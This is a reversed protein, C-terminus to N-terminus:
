DRIGGLIKKLKERGRNVTVRVTSSAGDIDLEEAIEDYSKGEIFKLRLIERTQENEFSDFANMIEDMNNGGIIIEEPNQTESKIQFEGFGESERSKESLGDTSLVEINKKRSFDIATGSAIKYLWTSFAGQTEDFKSINEYVKQFIVVRLDEADAVNRTYRLLYQMLQREHNSYLRNFADSKERESSDASKFIAILSIDRVAQESKNM